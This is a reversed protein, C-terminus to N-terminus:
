ISKEDKALEKIKETMLFVVFPPSNLNGSEWKKIEDGVKYEKGEITFVKDSSENKLVHEIVKSSEFHHYGFKDALLEAQTGKGAGPQGFVIIIQKDEMIKNM